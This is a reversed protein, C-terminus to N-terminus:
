RRAPAKAAPKAAKEKEEARAGALINVLGYNGEHCAYEVLEYQSDDKKIPFGITWPRTWTDPDEITIRVDITDAATRTYREILKLGRDSGRYPNKGNFNTVEVVLTDGEWRGRADGLWHTLKQGVHPSPSTPIVRAEHIMEKTVVVYGPGQVIQVGNNYGIPLWLDPMGRTICRVFPSLDDAWLGPRLEESSGEVLGSGNAAQDALRKKGQPTLAPIKGEPPDVILAVQQSPNTKVFGLATDRWERDYGWIGAQTARERRAAAETSSLQAKGDLNAPRELPVGHMDNVTWIGELDPEGWATRPAQWAAATPRDASRNETTVAAARPTLKVVGELRLNDPAAIMGATMAQRDGDLTDAVEAVQVGKRGLEATAADADAFKFALHDITRGATGQLPGRNTNKAVILWSKGYQLGNLKGKLMGARGGFTTQYWKQTSAPDDAFLHIHHFGLLESDEVLEIKTGWPDKVFAYKFLGPEEHIPNVRDAVRVGSGGVGVAVLQAVKASLDQFSFAIHDVATGENGGGAPRAIFLLQIDGCRAADTRAPIAECGLHQIYWRAAVDGNTVTLHLHHFGAEAAIAPSALSMSVALSFM